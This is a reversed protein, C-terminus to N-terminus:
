GGAFDLLDELRDQPRLATGENAAGPRSGDAGVSLYRLSHAFETGESFLGAALHFGAADARGAYRMTEGARSDFAYVVRDARGLGGDRDLDLGLAVEDVPAIPVDRRKILAEVIALNVAYLTWDERGAADERFAAPLRISVDGYSGNTPWFAGPLPAYALARWGTREGEPNRDYGEADFDFWVDPTYGSWVGDGDFDWATPPLDLREALALGDADHSNDQAVYAVIEDRPMAAVAAGTWSLNDWPNVLAPDPFDYLTQLDGDDGYNPEASAVHCIYCPNHVVASADVTRTYCQPPILAFPNRLIRSKLDHMRDSAFAAGFLLPAAAVSAAFARKTAGPM